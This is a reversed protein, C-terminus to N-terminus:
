LVRVLGYRTGRGVGWQSLLGAALLTTLDRYATARSCGAITCYLETSIGNKFGEPTDYLKGFVKRQSAGLSPMAAFAGQWFHNKAIRTQIQQMSTQMALTICNVFWAVWPTVDMTIAGTAAQLQTYYGKRDLWLQQSLSLVRQVPAGKFTTQWDQFLALEALARGLRGNGDDYPHIAEFWLHALAARVLGDTPWQATRSATFWALMADMQTTMASSDPAQYHVVENGNITPTIMQMPEAHSRYQGVAIAQFRSFGTPFLATHWTNLLARNIPKGLQVCSLASQLIDLMGETASDQRNTTKALGLRRAVCARLSNVQLVEGKIHATSQAEHIGSTSQTQGQDLLNLSNLSGMLQSQVSRAQALAPALKIMDCHLRPWDLSQWIYSGSHLRDRSERHVQALLQAARKKSFIFRLYAIQAEGFVEGFKM